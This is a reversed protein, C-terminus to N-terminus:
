FAWYPGQGLSTPKADIGFYLTRGFFFPLGWMFYPESTSVAAAYGPFVNNSSALLADADVFAITKKTAGSM